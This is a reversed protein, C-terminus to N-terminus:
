CNELLLLFFRFTLAFSRPSIGVNENSKYVTKMKMARNELINTHYVYTYTDRCDNKKKEEKEQFGNTKTQKHLNQMKNKEM